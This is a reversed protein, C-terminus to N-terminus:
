KMTQQPYKLFVVYVYLLMIGIGMSSGDPLRNFNKIRNYHAIPLGPMYTVISTTLHRNTAIIYLRLFCLRFHETGQSIFRFLQAARVLLESTVINDTLTM